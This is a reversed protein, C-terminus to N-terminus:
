LLGAKKLILAASLFADRQYSHLSDPPTAANSAAVKSLMNPAAYAVNAVTLQLLAEIKFTVGSAAMQGSGSRNKIAICEIHNERMFAEAAILFSKLSSQKKDDELILKKTPSQIHKAGAASDEVIVLIAENSKIQVGCVRLTERGCTLRAAVALAFCIVRLPKLIDILFQLHSTAVVGGGLPM